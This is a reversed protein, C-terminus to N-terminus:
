ERGDVDYGNLPFGAAYSIKADPDYYHNAGVIHGVEHSPAFFTTGLLTIAGEGRAGLYALNVGSSGELNAVFFM